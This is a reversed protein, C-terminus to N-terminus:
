FRLFRINYTFTFVEKRNSVLKGNSGVQYDQKKTEASSGYNLAGLYIPKQEQM